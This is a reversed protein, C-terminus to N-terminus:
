YEHLWQRSGALCGSDASRQDPQVVLPTNCRPPTTSVQIVKTMITRMEAFARDMRAMGPERAWQLARLIPLPTISVNGMCEQSVNVAHLLRDRSM